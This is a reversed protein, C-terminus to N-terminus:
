QGEGIKTLHSQVPRDFQGMYGLVLEELGVETVEFAPDIIPGNARILLTTQRPTRMAQV